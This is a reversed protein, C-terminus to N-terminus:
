VYSKRSKRRKRACLYLFLSALMVLSVAYLVIILSYDLHTFLSFIKTSGSYSPRIPSLLNASQLSNVQPKTVIRNASYFNVLFELVRQENYQETKHFCTSCELQTPFQRKPLRPDDSKTGNLRSNVRNHARWLWLVSSNSYTLVNELEASMSAFHRACDTCAFFNTIYGRMAYLTAHLSSWHRSQLSKQYEAVTLHHFLTWLSCPHSRHIDASLDACAQYDSLEPFHYHEEYMNMTARVDNMDIYFYKENKKRSFNVKKTLWDHFHKIFQRSKESEFPFNESLVTLYHILANTEKM